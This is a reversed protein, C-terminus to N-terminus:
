VQSRAQTPMLSQERRVKEVGARSAGGTAAAQPQLKAELGQVKRAMEEM